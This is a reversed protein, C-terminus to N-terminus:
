LAFDMMTSGGLLVEFMESTRPWFMAFHYGLWGYSRRGKTLPSLGIIALTAGHEISDLVSRAPQAPAPDADQVAM